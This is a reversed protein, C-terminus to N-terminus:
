TIHVSMRRRLFAAVASVNLMLVDSLGIPTPKKVMVFFFYIYIYIYINNLIHFHLCYIIEQRYKTKIIFSKTLAVSKAPGGTVFYIHILKKSSLDLCLINKFTVTLTKFIFFSNSNLSENEM